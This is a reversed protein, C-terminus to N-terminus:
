EEIWTTELDYVYIRGNSSDLLDLERSYEPLFHSSYPLFSDTESSFTSSSSSGEKGAKERAEKTRGDM